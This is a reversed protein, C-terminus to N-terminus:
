DDALPSPVYLTRTHFQHQWQHAKSGVGIHARGTLCQYHTHSLWTATPCFQYLLSIWQRQTMCTAIIFPIYVSPHLFFGTRLPKLVYVHAWLHCHPLVTLENLTRPFLLSTLHLGFGCRLQCLCCCSSAEDCPRISLIVASALQSQQFKLFQNTTGLLRVTLTLWLEYNTNAGLALILHRLYLSYHLRM